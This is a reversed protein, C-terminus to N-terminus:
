GYHFGKKKFLAALGGALFGLGFRGMESFYTAQIM